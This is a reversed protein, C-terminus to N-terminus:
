RIHAKPSLEIGTRGFVHSLRPAYVHYIVIPYNGPTSTTLPQAHRRRSQRWHPDTPLTEYSSTLYQKETNLGHNPEVVQYNLQEANDRYEKAPSPYQYDSHRRKYGEASPTPIPRVVDYPSKNSSLQEGTQVPLSEAEQTQLLAAPHADDRYCLDATKSDGPVDRHNSAPEKVYPHKEEEILFPHAEEEIVYPHVEEMIM